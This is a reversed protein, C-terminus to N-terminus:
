RAESADVDPPALETVVFSVGRQAGRLCTLAGVPRPGSGTALRQRHARVYERTALSPAFARWFRIGVRRGTAERVELPTRTAVRYPHSVRDWGGGPQAPTATRDHEGLLALLEAVTYGRRRYILWGSTREAAFAACTKLCRAAHRALRHAAARNMADLLKEQATETGPLPPGGNLYAALFATPMHSALVLPVPFRGLFSGIAELRARLPPPSSISVRRHFDIAVLHPESARETGCVLINSHDIDWHGFGRDHIRRV